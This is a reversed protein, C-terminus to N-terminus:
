ADTEGILREFRAERYSRRQEGSAPSIFATASSNMLNRQECFKKHRQECLDCQFIRPYGQL